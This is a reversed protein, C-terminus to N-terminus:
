VIDVTEITQEATGRDRQLKKFKDTIMLLDNKQNRKLNLAIVISNKLKNVKQKDTFACTINDFIRKVM